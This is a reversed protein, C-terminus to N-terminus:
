FYIYEKSSTLYGKEELPIPVVKQHFQSTNFEDVKWNEQKLHRRRKGHFQVQTGIM